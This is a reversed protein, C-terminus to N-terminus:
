TPSEFSTSVGAMKVAADRRMVQLELQPMRKKQEDEGISIV